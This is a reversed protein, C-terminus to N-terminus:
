LVQVITNEMSKSICHGRGPFNEGTKEIQFSVGELSLHWKLLAKRSEQSDVM